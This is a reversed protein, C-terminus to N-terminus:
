ESVLEFKYEHKRNPDVLRDDVASKWADAFYEEMTPTYNLGGISILISADVKGAKTDIILVKM